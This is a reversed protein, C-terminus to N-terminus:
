RFTDLKPQWGSTRVRGKEALNFLGLTGQIKEGLLCESVTILEVRLRRESSSFVNAELDRGLM